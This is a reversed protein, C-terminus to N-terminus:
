EEDDSSLGYQSCTNKNKEFPDNDGEIKMWIKYARWKCGNYDIDGLYGSRKWNANEHKKWYYSYLAKCIESRVTNKDKHTITNLFDPSKDGNLKIIGSDKIGM